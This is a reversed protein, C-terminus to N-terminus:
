RRSRRNNAVARLIAESEIPTQDFFGEPWEAFSGFRDPDMAMFKTRGGTRTAYWIRVLDQAEGFEEEAVRLRLRNILYESHTEVILQRGSEAVALLFDGLVQQPAPHLHLEPQELLVVQGPQALLCIVIVPLLQSAGVGVSTLDRAENTQPDLLELEVGPRGLNRTHIGSALSFRGVWYEVARGLTMTRLHGEYPCVVPETKNTHFVAVTHEGKMGLTAVGGGQGPRYTLAPEARLPGLYHVGQLITAFDAGVELAPSFSPILAGRDERTVELLRSLEQPVADGLILARRATAEDLIPIERTVDPEEGRDIADVWRRFHPFVQEAVGSADTRDAESLGMQLKRRASPLDPPLGSRRLAQRVWQQGLVFSENEIGYIEVPLGNEVAVAPYYDSESTARSTTVGKFAIGENAGGLLRRAGFGFRRMPRFRSSRAFMEEIEERNDNASVDLGVGSLPDRIRISVVSAMGPEGPSDKLTLSWTAGGRKSGAGTGHVEGPKSSGSLQRRRALSSDAPMSLAIEIEGGQSGHLVDAFNGLNLEMGNLSVVDPRTRGQNIQALLFIGQLISSKGASNEGVLVTLPRLDLHAKKISKFNRIDITSLIRKGPM